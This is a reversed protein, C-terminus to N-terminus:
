SEVEEDGRAEPVPRAPRSLKEALTVMAQTARAFEAALGHSNELESQVRALMETLRELQRRAHLSERLWEEKTTYDREFDNVAESVRLVSQEVRDIRQSTAAHTGAQQQHISKLYLAILTLPAGVLPALIGVLAGLTDWGVTALM